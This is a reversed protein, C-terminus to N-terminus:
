PELINFMPDFEDLCRFLAQLVGVDGHFPVLSEDLGQLFTKGSIILSALKQRNLVISAQANEGHSGQSHSLAGHSLTLRRTEEADTMQWDILLTQGDALPGNVRVALFDLFMELPMMAVVKPSIMGIGGSPPKPAGHRLERAGQLYANRWTASEAQYGLQEMADAALERAVQHDPEAFVLHNLM